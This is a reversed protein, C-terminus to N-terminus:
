SKRFWPIFASTTRQYERYADGKSRVAHEETLPMGTVKLLFQLMLLLDALTEGLLAIAALILGAIELPSLTPAPNFAVLLLPLSFIVVLVAQREFFVLFMGAGPWRARLTEYRLDEQPHHRLVRTSHEMRFERGRSCHHPAPGNM